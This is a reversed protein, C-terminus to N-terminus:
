CQCRRFIMEFLHIKLFPKRIKGAVALETSWHTLTCNKEVMQKRKKRFEDLSQGHVFSPPSMSVYAVIRLLNIPEDKQREEIATAPSNCHVMRSDWIVLDGARCHVLKGHTEDHSIISHNHPVLVFDKPSKTVDRLEIFRLHSRPFLILGGTKENQDTLAVFGQMCCRDPKNIPNQDVHQWGSTTKWEPNNRWDRFVSCGDFSVLLQETNWIRAYVKKVQRSSRVSWM